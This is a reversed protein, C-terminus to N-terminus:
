TRFNALKIKFILQQIEENSTIGVYNLKKFKLQYKKLSAMVVWKIMMQKLHYKLLM